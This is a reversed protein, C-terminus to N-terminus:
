KLQQQQKRQQRAGVQTPKEQREKGNTTIEEEDEPTGLNPFPASSRKSEGNGGMSSGGFGASWRVNRQVEEHIIQRLQKLSIKM